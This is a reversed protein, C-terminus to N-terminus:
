DARVASSRKTSAKDPKTYYSEQNELLVKAVATYRPHVYVVVALSLLFAIATPVIIGNRRRSIGKLLRRLDIAEETADAAHGDGTWESSM